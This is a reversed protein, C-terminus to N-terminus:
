ARHGGHRYPRGTNFAHKTGFEKELDVGFLSAYHLLRILVDAFEAPIEDDRHKRWHEAAESVETTILCMAELFTPPPDNWGHDKAYTWVMEQAEAITTM